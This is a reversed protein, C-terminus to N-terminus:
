ERGGTGNVITSLNVVPEPLKPRAFEVAVSKEFRLM